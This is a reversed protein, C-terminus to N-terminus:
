LSHHVSQISMTVTCVTIHKSCISFQKQRLGETKALLLM